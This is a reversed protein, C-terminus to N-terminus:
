YRRISRSWLGLFYEAQRYDPTVAEVACREVSAAPQSMSSSSLSKKRIYDSAGSFFAVAAKTRVVCFSSACIEIWRLMTGCPAINLVFEKAISKDGVGVLAMSDLLNDSSAACCSGDLPLSGSGFACQVFAETIYRDEISKALILRRYRVPSTAEINRLACCHFEDVNRFFGHSDRRNLWAVSDAEAVM